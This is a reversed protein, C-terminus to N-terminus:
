KNYFKNEYLVADKLLYKPTGVPRVFGRSTVWFKEYHPYLRMLEVVHPPIKANEEKDKASVESKQEVGDSQSLEDQTSVIPQEEVSATEIKKIRGM